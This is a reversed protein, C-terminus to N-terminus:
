LPVENNEFVSLFFRKLVNTNQVFYCNQFTQCFTNKTGTFSRLMRDNQRSLFKAENLFFLDSTTNVFVIKTDELHALYAKTNTGPLAKWM